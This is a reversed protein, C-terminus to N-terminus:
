GDPRTREILREGAAVQDVSHLVAGSAEIAKVLADYRIDTGEITIETGVTEIDIETVTMNLAEVGAVKAIADALELLTPRAAAKDVDLVVRRISLAM